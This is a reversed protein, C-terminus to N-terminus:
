VSAPTRRRAWRSVFLSHRKAEIITKATIPSRDRPIAHKIGFTREWIDQWRKDERYLRAYTKWRMWRPKAPFPDDVCASGGLRERMSQERNGYRMYAQEYQSKYKAGYCKRCRFYRGGYIVRCRRKCSPCEFWQRRGGFKTATHVFPIVESISEGNCTYCLMMGWPLNAYAISGLVHGNRTWRLTGTEYGSRRMEALDISHFDNTTTELFSRHRAM